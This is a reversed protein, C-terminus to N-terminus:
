GRCIKQVDVDSTTGDPLQRRITIPLVGKRLELIALDIPKTVGKPPTILLPAGLAIQLARAGIIRAEEFRTLKPPGIIATDNSDFVTSTIGM